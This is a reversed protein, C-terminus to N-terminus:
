VYAELGTIKSPPTYFYGNVQRTDAYNIGLFKNKIVITGATATPRPVQKLVLKGDEVVAANMTTVSTM